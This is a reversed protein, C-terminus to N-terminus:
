GKTFFRICVMGLFFATFSGAFTITFYLSAIGYARDAFMKQLECVLSSLTTFGGCLGTALFLRTDQTLLGRQDALHVVIGLIFCGAINSLLTGYPISVAINKTLVIFLYRLLSGIMGGAGVLGCSLLVKVM